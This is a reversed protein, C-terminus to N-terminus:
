VPASEAGIRRRASLASVNCYANASLHPHESSTAILTSYLARRDPRLHIHDDYFMDPQGASLGNWDLLSANAYRSVGDVIVSNNPDEWHRGPVRVTLFM